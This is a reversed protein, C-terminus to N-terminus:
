RVHHIISGTVFLSMVAHVVLVLLAIWVGVIIVAM